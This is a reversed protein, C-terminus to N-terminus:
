RNYVEAMRRRVKTAMDAIFVDTLRISTKKSNAERFFYLGRMFYDNNIQQGSTLKSPNEFQQFLNLMMPSWEPMRMHSLSIYLETARNLDIMNSDVAFIFAAKFTASTFRKDKPKIVDAIHHSLAFMNHDQMKILDAPVIKKLGLNGVKLLFQIPHIIKPQIGLIDGNSRNVGQDLVKFVDENKVLAVSAKITCQSAIVASLRHQGDLLRGSKSFVIPEPSLIWRGQRMQAALHTVHQSRLPRNGKNMELWAKALNPTVKMVRQDIESSMPISTIQESITM